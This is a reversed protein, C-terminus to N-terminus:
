GKRLAELFQYYVLLDMGFGCIMAGLSGVLQACSGGEKRMGEDKRGMVAFRPTLYPHDVAFGRDFCPRKLWCVAPRGVSEWDGAAASTRLAFVRGRLVPTRAIFFPM